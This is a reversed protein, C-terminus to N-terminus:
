STEKGDADVQPKVSVSGVVANLSFIIIAIFNPCPKPAIYISRITINIFLRRKQNKPPPADIQLLLKLFHGNLFSKRKKEKRTRLIQIQKVLPIKHFILLKYHRM